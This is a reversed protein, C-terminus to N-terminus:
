CGVCYINSMHYCMTIHYEDSAPSLLLLLAIKSWSLFRRGALVFEFEKYVLM